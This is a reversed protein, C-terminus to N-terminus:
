KKEHKLIYGSARSKWFQSFLDMSSIKMGTTTKHYEANSIDM